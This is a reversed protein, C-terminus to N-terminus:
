SSLSTGTKIPPTTKVGTAAAVTKGFVTTKETIGGSKPLVPTAAKFASSRSFLTEIQGPTDTFSVDPNDAFGLTKLGSTGEFSSVQLGMVQRSLGKSGSANVTSGSQTSGRIGGASVELTGGQSTGSVDTEVSTGIQVTSVTGRGPTVPICTGQNLYYSKTGTYNSVASVATMLVITGALICIIAIYVHHLTFQGM